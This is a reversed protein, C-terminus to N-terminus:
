DWVVEDLTDWGDIDVLYSMDVTMPMESSPSLWPRDRRM